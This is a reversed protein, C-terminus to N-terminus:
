SEVEGFLYRLFLYDGSRRADALRSWPAGAVSFAVGEVLSLRPTEPARGAIQPAITIFLEDILRAEVMRGFLHPGGECLVVAM